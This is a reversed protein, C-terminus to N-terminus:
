KKESRGGNKFAPMAKQPMVWQQLGLKFLNNFAGWSIHQHVSFRVSLVAIFDMELNIDSLRM